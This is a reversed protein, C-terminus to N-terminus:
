PPPAPVQEKPGLRKNLDFLPMQNAVLFGEAPRELDAIILIVLAFSLAAITTAPWSRSNAEGLEYGIGAMGLFMMIFLSIWIMDPLRAYLSASVRNRQLNIADNLSEVFLAFVNSDLNAKGAATAQTWLLEQLKESRRIAQFILQIKNSTKYIQHHLMLREDLYDRLLNQVVIRNPNPLFDARLFATGNANAEEIILVRRDNFREAAVGFTFALVFALLGLTSQVITGIPLKDTGTRRSRMYNELRYGVEIGVVVITAAIFFISWLPTRDILPLSEM